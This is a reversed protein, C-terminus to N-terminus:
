PNLLVAAAAFPTEVGNTLALYMVQLDLSATPALFHYDDIYGAATSDLREGNPWLFALERAFAQNEWDEFDVTSSSASALANGYIMKKPGLFPLRGSLKGTTVSPDGYYLKYQVGGLHMPFAAQASKFLKPCGDSGYQVVWRAGDWVAYAHNMNYSSCGTVLDTTLVMFTGPAGDWRWDTLTPFGLKFQRVNSLKNSPNVSDGNVGVQVTPVCGGGSSYDASTSCTKPVGSNFDQGVYGDQSDLSYIRTKGDSAQAEFFLRIKGGMSASLPVGQGTAIQKVATAATAPSILGTTAASSTFSLYSAPVAASTDTGAIATSLAQGSSTQPNPGYYLQIRNTTSSAADSGIRTASIRVNGDSVIRTLGATTNGSGQLQWFEGSTTADVATGTASQQCAADACSKVAVTYTTAAKLGSLLASTSTSSLSVKTNQVVENATVEYHDVATTPAEWSVALKTSSGFTQTGLTQSAHNSVTVKGPPRLTSSASVTNAPDSSYNFNASANVVTTSTYSNIKGDNVILSVLYTGAVDAAFSPKASTSAALTAASGTPKSTLTWVYTLADGNPDSSASGDLTVSSGATVSQSVGANAWPTGNANAAARVRCEAGNTLDAFGYRQLQISPLANITLAGGCPNGFSTSVTGDAVPAAPSVYSSTLTQGNAYKRFDAGTINGSSDMNNQVVQWTPSGDAAYHFMAMFMQGNQVEIAYGRGGEAANWFWGSEPQAGSNVADLGNFNFRVTNWQRGGPLSVVARTTNGNGTFAINLTGVSVSTPMKWVGGLAQGGAYQRLDGTFQYGTAAISFTGTAVYWIAKGAADYMFLGAFASSGQAEFAMGTGGAKDDWYWGNGAFSAGPTTNWALRDTSSRLGTLSATALASTTLDSLSPESTFTKSLAYLTFVYRHASTSPPCPGGYGLSGLGNYSQSFTANTSANAALAVTTAPINWAKWHVLNGADLDQVVVALGVTNAPVNGINLPPSWNSGTCQSAYSYVFQVPIIGNDIFASSTLTMPVVAASMAKPPASGSVELPFGSDQGGGCAVLMLSSLVVVLFKM